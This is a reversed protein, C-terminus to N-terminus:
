LWYLIAQKHDSHHLLQSDKSITVKKHKKKNNLFSPIIRLQRRTSLARKRCIRRFANKLIFKQCTYSYLCFFISNTQCAFNSTTWIAHYLIKSIKKRKRSSSSHSIITIIIVIILVINIIIFLHRSFLIEISKRLICCSLTLLLKLLKYFILVLLYFNCSHLM